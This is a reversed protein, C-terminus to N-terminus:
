KWKTLIEERGFLRVGTYISIINAVLFIVTGTFMMQYNMFLKGSLGFMQFLFVPLIILSGLQQAARIDKLKTSIIICFTVSLFSALTGLIFFTYLWKLNPMLLFGFSNFTAIDIGICVIIFSVLSVGMAPIVAALCKGIFLEYVTIPTALLSELTKREKEGIISYAAIMIPILMPILLFMSTYQDLILIQMIQQSELHTYQPYLNHLVDDSVNIRVDNGSVTGIIVFSMVLPLVIITYIIMKTKKMEEFEKLLLVKIKVM